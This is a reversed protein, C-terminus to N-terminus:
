FTFRIGLQGVRQEPQRFDGAFTTPQMFTPNLAPSAVSGTYRRTVFGDPNESNVLNFVEGIAEIRARGRLKFRRAVRVNMQSSRYGRGCQWTECPGLDIPTSPNAPNYAFARDPIDNNTFDNNLDLGQVIAVPLASRFILIPSIQFHGPTEMVASATFRHRADTLRNPAFVRPDDFPNIADQILSADPADSSDGINSLSRSFTYSLNFDMGRSWRRRTSLILADYQSIGRSISPRLNTNNPSLALDALRFPGGNPRTNLQPRINLKRGDIHVYDANFITSGNIQHTWGFASQRSEPQELRPSIPGFGYLPKSGPRVENLSAIDSLPQGARFLSGDPNRLGNPNTAAFIPGFGLPSADAAGILINSSTYGM